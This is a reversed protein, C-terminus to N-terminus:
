ADLKGRLGEGQRHVAGKTWRSEAAEVRSSEITKRARRALIRRRPLETALFRLVPPMPNNTPTPMITAMAVYVAGERETALPHPLRM